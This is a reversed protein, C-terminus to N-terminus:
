RQDALAFGYRFALRAIGAMIDGNVIGLHDGPMHYSHAPRPGNSSFGITPWGRRFFPVIDGSRVGVSRTVSIDELLGETDARLLLPRTAELATVYSAEAKTGAGEGDFNLMAAVKRFPTPLHAAFHESGHGGQEESGFLAFVVSRRPRLGNKAFAKAIQLVVASGSANDDAGPFLLGMHEGVGDFHAGFVVCEEKLAPDTGELVAMINHGVGKPFHRAEVAMDFAGEMPFSAPRKTAKLKQKLSSVSQGNAQLLRDALGESIMAPRFDPIRDGNPNAIVEAYIYVLGLAGRAKAQAMRTRHEDHHTWKADREPTGRFCLVYKGKVDLDAYDDYGLEPAHIGWGAFVLGGKARGADAYLMPMFDGPLAAQFTEGGLDVQLSAKDVVAYPNPFAQLYGAKADMPKLGLARFRDAAWRAAADYQPHGTLRGGFAKGAMADVLAHAEKASVAAVGRALRPEEPPAALLAAGFLLALPRPLAPHM